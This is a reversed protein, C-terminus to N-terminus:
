RVVEESAAAFSPGEVMEIKRSFMGVAKRLVILDTQLHNPCRKAGDFV